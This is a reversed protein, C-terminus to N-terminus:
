AQLRIDGQERLRIAAANTHTLKFTVEELLGARVVCGLYCDWPKRLTCM